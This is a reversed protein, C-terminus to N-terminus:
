SGRWAGQSKVSSLSVSRHNALSACGGDSGSDDGLPFPNQPLPWSGAQGAYPEYEVRISNTKTIVPAVPNVEEDRRPRLFIGRTAYTTGKPQGRISTRSSARSPTSALAAKRPLPPQGATWFGDKNQAREIEMSTMQLDDDDELRRQTRRPEFESRVSKEAMYSQGRADQQHYPRGGSTRGSSLWGRRGTVMELLPQLVPICAAIIITGGEAITFVVLDSTSYTFDGSALSPLRTTKYIAVITAISGIGLAGCLALKKKRAMQLKYLVISPYVALYLDLFASFYGSWTAWWILIWPSWCQRKLSFDWQSAAPTCQAFHFVVCLFLNFVCLSAMGWLAIRHIRSPNMLHTLFAVVALKPIGFAMLGPGFGMVTWFIAKSHQEETLVEFHKGSGTAVAATTFAVAIWGFLMSVIILWDDLQWKGMMRGRVFLRAVVFFSAIAEVTYCAALIAPGKNEAAM